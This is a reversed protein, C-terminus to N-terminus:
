EAAKRDVEATEINLGAAKYFALKARNYSHTLTNFRRKTKHVRRYSNNVKELHNELVGPRLSKDQFMKYLEIDLAISNQYADYLKQYADYRANALRVLTKAKEKLDDKRIEQVTPKLPLLRDYAKEIIKKEQNVLRRRKKASRIAKHSLKMIRDYQELNLHTLQQFLKQEKKEATLLPDYVQRLQIETVAAEELRDYLVEVPRDWLTCGSSLLLPIILFLTVFPKKM